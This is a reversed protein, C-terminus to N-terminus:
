CSPEGPGVGGDIGQAALQSAGLLGGGESRRLNELLPPRRQLRGAALCLGQGLRGLGLPRAYGPPELTEPVDVQEGDGLLSIKALAVLEDRRLAGIHLGGGPLQLM